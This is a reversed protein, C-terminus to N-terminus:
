RARDGFTAVAESWLTRATVHPCEDHCADEVSVTRLRREHAVMADHWASLRGSLSTAEATGIDASLMMYPNM